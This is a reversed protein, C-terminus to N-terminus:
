TTPAMKKSARRSRPERGALACALAAGDTAAGAQRERAVAAEVIAREEATLRFAWRTRGSPPRGEPTVLGSRLQRSRAHYRRELRRELAMESIGLKAAIDAINFDTTMVLHYAAETLALGTAVARPRSTEIERGVAVGENNEPDVIM